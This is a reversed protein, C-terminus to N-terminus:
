AASGSKRRRLVFVAGAGLAVAAAGAGAIAPLASSAGTHALSGSTPTTDAVPVVTNTTKKTPTSTPLPAVGGSQPVPKSGTTSTGPAVIQIKYYATSAAECNHQMDEYVGGGITLGTGIPANSMVDLRLPIDWATSGPLNGSGLFGVSHKGDNTVDFWQKAHEDYAQLDVQKLSYASKGNVSGVGAVLGIGKVTSNSTNTVTMTFKHWGSGAVIRGSLGSIRTTVAAKYGPNQIECVGPQSPMPSPKGSAPASPMTGTSPATGAAQASSTTPAAASPAQSPATSASAAGSTGPAPAAADAAFASPASMLAAPAIAATTAVTVLARRLKM